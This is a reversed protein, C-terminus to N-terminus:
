RRRTSVGRPCSDTLVRGLFSPHCKGGVNLTTDVTPFEDLESGGQDSDRTESYPLDASGGGPWDATWAVRLFGVRERFTRPRADQAHTRLSGSARRAMGRRAVM